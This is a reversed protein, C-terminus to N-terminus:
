DKCDEIEDELFKYFELKASREDEKCSFDGPYFIIGRHIGGLELGNDECYDEAIEKLCDNQENSIQVLAIILVIGVVGMAIYIISKILGM